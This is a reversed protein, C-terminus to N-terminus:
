GDGFRGRTAECGCPIPTAEPHAYMMAANLRTHVAIAIETPDARMRLAYFVQTTIKKRLTLFRDATIPEDPYELYFHDVVAGMLTMYDARCRAEEQRLRTRLLSALWSEHSACLLGDDAPGLICGCKLERGHAPPEYQM